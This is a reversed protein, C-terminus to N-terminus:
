KRGKYLDRLMNMGLNHPSAITPERAVHKCQKCFYDEPVQDVFECEYGICTPKSPTAM